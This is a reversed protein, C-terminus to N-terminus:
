VATSSDLVDWLLLSTGACEDWTGRCWEGGASLLLGRFWASKHPHALPAGTIEGFIAIKQLLIGSRLFFFSLCLFSQFLAAYLSPFPEEASRTYLVDSTPSNSM